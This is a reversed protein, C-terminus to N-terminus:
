RLFLIKHYENKCVVIESYRNRYTRNNQFIQTPTVFKLREYLKGLYSGQFEIRLAVNTNWETPKVRIYRAFIVHLLRQEVLRANHVNGIFVKLAFLLLNSYNSLLFIYYCSAWFPYLVGTCFM